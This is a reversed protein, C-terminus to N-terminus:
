KLYHTLLVNDLIPVDTLKSVRSTILSFATAFDSSTSTIPLVTLINTFLL